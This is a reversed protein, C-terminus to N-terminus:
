VDHAVPDVKGYREAMNGHCTVYYRGKKRILWTPDTCMGNYRLLVLRGLRVAQCHLMGYHWLQRHM